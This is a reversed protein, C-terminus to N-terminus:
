RRKEAPAPYAPQPLEAAPAGAPYQPFPEIPQYM